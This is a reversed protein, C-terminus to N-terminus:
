TNSDSPIPIVQAATLGPSVMMCLSTLHKTPVTERRKMSTLQPHLTRQLQGMLDVAFHDVLARASGGTTHHYCITSSLPVSKPDLLM